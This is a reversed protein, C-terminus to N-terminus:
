LPQRTMAHTHPMDPILHPAKSPRLQFNLRFYHSKMDVSLHLNTVLAPVDYALCGELRQRQLTQMSVAIRECESLSRRLFHSVQLLVGYSTRTSLLDVYIQTLRRFTSSTSAALLSIASGRWIREVTIEPGQYRSVTYGLTFHSLPYSLVASPQPASRSFQDLVRHLSYPTERTFHHLFKSRRVFDVYDSTSVRSSSLPSM